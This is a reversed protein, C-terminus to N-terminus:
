RKALSRYNAYYALVKPVYSRTESFPPIQNGAQAV